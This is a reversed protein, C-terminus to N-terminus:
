VESSISSASLSVSIEVLCGVVVCVMVLVGGCCIVVNCTFLVFLVCWILILNIM